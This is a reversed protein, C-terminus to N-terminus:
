GRDKGADYNRATGNILEHWATARTSLDLETFEVGTPLPRPPADFGVRLADPRGLANVAEAFLDALRADLKAANAVLENCGREVEAFLARWEAETNEM